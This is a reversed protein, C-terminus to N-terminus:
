LIILGVLWIILAASFGCVTSGLTQLRIGTKVDMDSMQTLIWFMSDNAHSAVFSGAGISLVMLALGINSDLGLSAALPAMIPATTIIAVTSSGQAARIAAAVIFPLWLGLNFTKMSDGIVGAIGSNQLIKGFAGGAGTIMIIIAANLLARGVWGSASLMDTKLKKPLCLAILIGIFLAILPEGIFKVLQAMFGDGFPHTVINDESILPYEAISKLVILIIPIFIPMFAKWPAPAEKLLQSVDEDSVGPEPEIYIRSAFKLAFLWGILAVVFSIPFGLLIVLGLDANLFKAAAIPGPTPPMMTHSAM